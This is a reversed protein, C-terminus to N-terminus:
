ASHATMSTGRAGSSVARQQSSAKSSQLVERLKSRIEGAVEASVVETPVLFCMWRRRMAIRFLPVGREDKVVEDHFQRRVKRGKASSGVLRRYVEEAALRPYQATLERAVRAVAGRRAPDAWSDALEIGWRECIELPTSFAGVIVAPLQAVKLYRCIQSPSRRLRRAIEEQSAFVGDRLWAKYCLGLEYASIERREHNEIDMAVIADHDSLERVEVLLEKNLHRAVFLRRAGCIIEVDYGSHRPLPRGLAPVVQGFKLFSEIESKCTEENITEELRDHLAWLRCRFPNVAMVESVHCRGEDM